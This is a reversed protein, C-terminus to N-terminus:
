NAVSRVMRATLVETANLYATFQLKMFVDQNLGSGTQEGDTFKLQMLDLIHANGASDVFKIALTDATFNRYKDMQAKSTFYAELTGTIDISGSGISIAGLTGVQQRARLNNKYQMSFKTIGLVAGGELVGSIHDVTNMVAATTVATNTGTGATASAGTESKGIIDFSTKAVAGISIDWSMGDIACGKEVVFENTLDPFSKELSFSKFTTGNVIQSCRRVAVSGTSQTGATMALGSLTLVKNGSGGVSVIKAYGNNGAATWPNATSGLKVWKGVDATLSFGLTVWNTTTLTLTFNSGSAAVVINDTASNHVIDLAASWTADAQFGWEYFDPYADYSFEGQIDGAVDLGVRPIDSTQRDARVEQSKITATKQKLSESVYRLNKLTPPGSPTVGYTSEVVYALGVRNADSM